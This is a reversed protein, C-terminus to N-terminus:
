RRGGRTFRKGGSAVAEAWEKMHRCTKPRAKSFAWGRCTCYVIGDSGERLEHSKAPNSKSPWTRIVRMKPLNPEDCSMRGVVEPPGPPPPFYEPVSFDWTAGDPMSVTVIGKAISVEGHAGALELLLTRLDSM